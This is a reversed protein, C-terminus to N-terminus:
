YSNGVQIFLIDVNPAKEKGCQKPWLISTLQNWHGFDLEAGAPAENNAGSNCHSKWSNLQEYEMTYYLQKSENHEIKKKAKMLLLYIIIMKYFSLNSM